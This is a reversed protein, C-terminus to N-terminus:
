FVHLPLHLLGGVHEFVGEPEFGKLELCYWLRGFSVATCNRFLFVTLFMYKGVFLLPFGQSLGEVQQCAHFQLSLCM